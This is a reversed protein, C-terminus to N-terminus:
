GPMRGSVELYRDGVAQVQLGYLGAAELQGKVEDVEFAALLSNYFDQRLIEPAGRAYTDVIQQAGAATEPRRLDVILVAANRAAVQRLTIWLGAPEHLHHLLSNSVVATARGMPLVASPLVTEVFRARSAAGGMAVARARAIDLMAAAGDVGTVMCGPFAAAMRLAINGPGCGLDIIEGSDLAGFLEKFREVFRDDSASFDAEAYAIAQDQDLMLEPEPIRLM